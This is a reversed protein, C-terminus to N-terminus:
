QNTMTGFASKSEMMKIFSDELTTQKVIPNDKWFMSDYKLSEVVKKDRVKRDLITYQQNKLNDDIEYVTLLSSISSNIQQGRFNLSFFAKTSVSELVPIPANNSNFTAITTVVPPFNPSAESFKMPLNFVNNELRYIKFDDLGIYYTSNVYYLNKKANKYKCTIVAIKQDAQEIYKDITIQYDSLTTLNVFKGYKDPLLYGSYLFTLYSQNNIAFSLPTSLEAFRSQKAVWGDVRRANWKLDYFLEYIQSAQGNVTTLQRYFAKTYFNLGAIGKAKELAAKVIRQGKFPDVTVESLTISAPKLSVVLKEPSAVFLMMEVQLYSVHSVRLKAPYTTLKLIFDGNENSVTANNTGVIGVSVFPIGNGTVEDVVKGQLTQAKANTFYFLLLIVTIYKM